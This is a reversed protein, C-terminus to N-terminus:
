TGARPALKYISVHEIEAIPRDNTGTITVGLSVLKNGNREFLDAIRGAVTLTEGAFASQHLRANSSVHVGTQYSYNNHAIRIPQGLLMSAPVRLRGDRRYAEPSEGLRELTALIEAEEHVVTHPRLETGPPCNQENLEPLDM